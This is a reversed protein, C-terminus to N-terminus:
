LMKIYFFKKKYFSICLRYFTLCFLQAKLILLFLFASSNKTTTNRYTPVMKFLIIILCPQASSRHLVVSNMRFALRWKYLWAIFLLFSSSCYHISTIISLFFESANFFPGQYKTLNVNM